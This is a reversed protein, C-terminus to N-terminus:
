FDCYFQFLCLKVQKDSQINLIQVYERLKMNELQLESKLRNEISLDNLLLRIYDNLEIERASGEKLKNALEDNSRLLNRIVTDQEANKSKYEDLRRRLFLNGEDYGESLGIDTSKHANNLSKINNRQFTNPMTNSHQPIHVADPLGLSIIHTRLLNVKM